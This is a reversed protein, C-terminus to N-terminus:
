IVRLWLLRFLIGFMYWRVVKGRHIPNSRKCQENTFSTVLREYAVARIPSISTKWELVMIFKGMLPWQTSHDPRLWSVLYEPAQLHKCHAAYAEKTFTLLTYILSTKAEPIFLQKDHHFLKSLSLICYICPQDIFIWILIFILRFTYLLLSMDDLHVNHMLNFSIIESPRARKM